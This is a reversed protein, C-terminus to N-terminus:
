ACLCFLWWSIWIPQQSQARTTIHWSVSQFAIIQSIMLVQLTHLPNQVKYKRNCHRFSSCLSLKPTLQCVGTTIHLSTPPLESSPSALTLSHPGRLLLHCESGFCHFLAPGSLHYSAFNVSILLQIATLPFSLWSLCLNRAWHVINKNESCSIPSPAHKASSSSTGIPYKLSLVEM